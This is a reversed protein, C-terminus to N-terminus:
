LFAREAFAFPIQLRLGFLEVDALFSLDAHLTGDANSISLADDVADLFAQAQAHSLALLFALAVALSSRYANM